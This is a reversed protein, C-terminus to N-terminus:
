LDFVRTNCLFPSDFETMEGAEKGVVPFMRCSLPKNWRAGLGAVDLIVGTIAGVSTSESLPVTDVGVGCVSSVNMLHSVTYKRSKPDAQIESLRYDECVPLMVGCYGTLKIPLSQICTTVAATAAVIGTGAIGGHVGPLQELASGISGEPLLSPNLSTDLGVYECGLESCKSQILAACPSVEGAYYDHFVTQIADLTDCKALGLNALVGNELGFAIGPSNKFPSTSLPPAHAAPFFPSLRGYSSVSQAAYRFNGLGGETTTSLLKIIAAAASAHELDCPPILSSVSLRGSAGVILPVFKTSQKHTLAPGLSFFSINLGALISDLEAVQQSFKSADSIDLFETFSNTAIRVTQVEYGAAEVASQIQGLMESCSELKSQLPSSALPSTADDPSLTIFACITRVKFSRM